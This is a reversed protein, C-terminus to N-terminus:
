PQSSVPQSPKASTVFDTFFDAILDKKLAPKVEAQVPTEVAVAQMPVVEVLPSSVSQPQQNLSIELLSPIIM